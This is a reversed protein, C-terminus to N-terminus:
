RAYDPPMAIRTRGIRCLTKPTLVRVPPEKPMPTLIQPEATKQLLPANSNSFIFVIKKQPRNDAGWIIRQVNQIAPISGCPSKVELDYFFDDIKKFVFFTLPMPFFILDFFCPKKDRFMEIM